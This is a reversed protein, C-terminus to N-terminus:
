QKTYIHRLPYTGVEVIKGDQIQQVRVNDMGEVDDPGYTLLSSTIGGADFDKIKYFGQELV